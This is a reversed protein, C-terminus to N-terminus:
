DSPLSVTIRSETEVSELGRSRLAEIFARKLTTPLEATDPLAFSIVPDVRTELVVSKDIIGEVIRAVATLPGSIVLRQPGTPVRQLISDAARMENLRDQPLAKLLLDATLAVGHRRVHVVLRTNLPLDAVRFTLETVGMVKHTEDAADFAVIVDDPEIGAQAAPGEPLVKLVRAGANRGNADREQGLALGLWPRVVERGEALTNVSGLWARVPNIYHDVSALPDLGDAHVVFGFLDGDEDFVVAGLPLRSVTASVRTLREYRLIGRHRIDSECVVLEALHLRGFRDVSACYLKRGLEPAVLQSIRLAQPPTWSSKAAVLDTSFDRALFDVRRRALITGEQFLLASPDAHRLARSSALLITTEDNLEVFVGTATLTASSDGGPSSGTEVVALADAVKRFPNENTGAAMASVALVLSTCVTMVKRFLSM